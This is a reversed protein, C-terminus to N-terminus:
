LELGQNYEKDNVQTQNNEGDRNADEVIIGQNDIVIQMEDATLKWSKDQGDDKKDTMDTSEERELESGAALAYQYKRTLKANQSSIRRLRWRTLFSIHGQSTERWFEPGRNAFLLVLRRVLGNAKGNPEIETLMRKAVKIDVGRNLADIIQLAEEAEQGKYEGNFSAEVEREWQEAREPFVIMQGRRILDDMQEQEKPTLVIQKDSM